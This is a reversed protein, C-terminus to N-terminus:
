LVPVVGYWSNTLVMGSCGELAEGSVESEHCETNQLMWARVVGSRCGSGISPTVWRGDKMRLFVNAFCASTLQNDNNWLLREDFGLARAHRIAQIHPWYNGTKHGGMPPVFVREGREVAMSVPPQENRQEAIVFFSSGLVADTPSGPGATIYIRAWSGQPLARLFSEVVAPAPASYPLELATCAERLRELHLGLFEAVGGGARLSEFVSMGYRFARDALSIDTASRFTASPEHWRWGNM